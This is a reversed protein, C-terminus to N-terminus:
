GFVSKYQIDFDYHETCYGVKDDPYLTINFKRGCETKGYIVIADSSEEDDTTKSKPVKKVNVKVLDVGRGQYNFKSVRHGTYVDFQDAEVNNKLLILTGRVPNIRMWISYVIFLLIAVILLGLLFKYFNERYFIISDQRSFQSSVIRNDPGYNKSSDGVLEVYLTQQGDSENGPVEGIFQEPNKPDPKLTIPEGSGIWAEFANDTDPIILSSPIRNEEECEDEHNGEDEGYTLCRGDRGLLEVRVSVPAIPLPWSWGKQLIHDHIQPLLQESAPEVISITFPTVPDVFFELNDHQFLVVDTDFINSLTLTEDESIAPKDIRMKTKGVLSVLYVGSEPVKLPQTAVFLSQEKDWALAYKDIDGSPRTVTASVNVGFYGVDSNSIVEGADNRMQYSLYIPATEDYFPEIDKQSIQPLSLTFGGPNVQAPEYFATIGGSACRDSGIFWVGPYPKDFIYREVTGYATYDLVSFGNADSPRNGKIEHEVGQSDTYRLSVVTNESFKFFTFTAKEQYPNVAVGGCKVIGTPVGTLTALVTAFYTPIEQRNNAGLEYLDVVEGAHSLAIQRYIQKVDRPWNAGYNMLMIYIYTSNSYADDSVDYESYCRHLNKYEVDDFSGVAKVEASICQERKLLAEDFTLPDINKEPDGENILNALEQTANVYGEYPTGGLEDRGILGDTLYVVVRKRVEGTSRTANAFMSPLMKFAELPYTDGLDDSEIANNLREELATLEALTAPSIETFPLEVRAKEEDGFYVVAIQHSVNPCRNLVNGGLWGVMAEVAIERQNEPDTPYNRYGSMSSSQDIVFIIDLPYCGNENKPPSAPHKAAFTKTPVSASFLIVTVMIVFLKKRM